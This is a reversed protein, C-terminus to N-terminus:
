AEAGPATNHAFRRRHWAADGFMTDIMTLRRFYHTVAMEDTMGMGGHMQIAEQGLKRGARGIWAKAASVARRREEPERATCKVAAMYAMSKAQEALIFMETARHQLAQFSSLPAGFQQRTKLYDRTAWVMHEMIGAAEACVVATARDIAQELIPLGEDVEGLIADAGGVNV